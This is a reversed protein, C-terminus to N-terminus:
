CRDFASFGHKPEKGFVCSFAKQLIDGATAAKGNGPAHHSFLVAWDESAEMTQEVISRMLGGTLAGGVYRYVCGDASIMFTTPYARIGYLYSYIGQVDMVVPFTYGRVDFVIPM